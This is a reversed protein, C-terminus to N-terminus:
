PNFHIDLKIFQTDKGTMPVRNTIATYGEPGAGDGIYQIVDANWNTYVLDTGATLDTSLGMDESDENEYHVYVFYNTDGESITAIVPTHGNETPNDPLGGWAYETLNDLGDGDPDDDMETESGITESYGALWEEYLSTPDDPAGVAFAVGMVSVQKTTDDTINWINTMGTVGEFSVRGVYRKSASSQDISYDPNQSAVESYSSAAEFLLGTSVAGFDYVNTYSSGLLAHDNTESGTGSFDVVDIFGSPSRIVYANVVALATNTLSDERQIFTIDVTGESEVEVYWVQSQPGSGDAPWYIVDDLLASGAFSMANTADWGGKNAAASVVVYDGTTVTFNAFEDVLPGNNGATSAEDVVYVSTPVEPYPTVKIELHDMLVQDGDGWDSHYTQFATLDSIGAAAFDVANTIPSAKQEATNGNPVYVWNNGVSVLRVEDAQYDIEIALTRPATLDLSGHFQGRSTNAGGIGGLGASTQIGGWLKDSVDYFRLGIWENTTPGGWLRMGFQTDAAPTNTWNISNVTWSLTVMNKTLDIGSVLDQAGSYKAANTPAFIFTGDGSVQAFQQLNTDSFQGLSTGNHSYQYQGDDAMAWQEIINPDISSPTANFTLSQVGLNIKEENATGTSTLVGTSQQLFGIFDINEFVPAAAGGIGNVINSYSGTPDYDFWSLSRADETWTVTTNGAGGSVDNAASIYWSGGAEIVYRATYATLTKAKFFSASLENNAGDFSVADVKFLHLAAGQSGYAGHRMGLGAGSNPQVRWGNSTDKFYAGYVDPGSGDGYADAAVKPTTTGLNFNAYTVYPSSVMDGSFSVVAEAFAGAGACAVVSTLINIWKKM